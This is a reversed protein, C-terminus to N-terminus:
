DSLVAVVGIGIRCNWGIGRGYPVPVAIRHSLDLALNRRHGGARVRDSVGIKGDATQRGDISVTHNPGLGSVLLSLRTRDEATADAARPPPRSRIPRKGAKQFGRRSTGLQPEFGHQLWFLHM